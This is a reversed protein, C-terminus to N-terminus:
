SVMITASPIIVLPPIAKGDTSISEVITVSLRNEPVGVYMEKIGIPVVVEEGIPCALQAGKEDMNHIYKGSKIQTYKLAPKYETEFWEHLHKKTHM